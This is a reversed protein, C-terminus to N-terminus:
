IDNKLSYRISGSDFLTLYGNNKMNEKETLKEDYHDLIKHLKHKMFKQRSHREGDYYFYNPPCVYDKNFGFREYLDGDSYDMNAFTVISEWDNNKKFHSLLKGFGGVVNESTAYRTLDHYGNFKKFSICAVLEGSYFLGYNIGSDISGQIHNNEYFPRYSSPSIEKVECKRAFVRKKTSMGCFRSIKEEIMKRKNPDNWQDEYIHLLKYGKEKCGIVKNQHYLEDKKIQISHWFMGNYEICLKHSEIVIDIEKPHLISRDNEKFSVGLSDVFDRVQKEGVSDGKVTNKTIGLADMSLCVTRHSGLGLFKAVEHVNGLEEYLKEMKEKSSLISITEDSYHDRTHHHNKYRGKNTAKTKDKLVDSKMPHDVGYRDLNTRKIKDRIDNNQTPNEVGYKDLNTQKIKNKVEENQFPNKVGHVEFYKNERDTIVEKSAFHHDVGYKNKNFHKVKDSFEKTKFYHEVGYKRLSTQKIKELVEKRQMHHEVGHKRLSNLRRREKTGKSSCSVSCFESFSNKGYVINTKNVVSVHNSCGTLGCLPIDQIEHYSCYVRLGFNKHFRTDDLFETYENVFNFADVCAKRISRPQPFNNKNVFSIFEQHDM